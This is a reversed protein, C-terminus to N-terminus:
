VVSDEQNVGTALDYVGVVQNNTDSHKHTAWSVVKRSKNVASYIHETYDPALPLFMNLVYIIFDYKLPLWLAIYQVYQVSLTCIWNINSVTSQPKSQYIM